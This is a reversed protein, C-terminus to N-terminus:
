PPQSRQGTVSRQFQHRKSTNYPPRSAQDTTIGGGYDEATKAREHNLQKQQQNLKQGLSTVAKDILEAMSDYEGFRIVM